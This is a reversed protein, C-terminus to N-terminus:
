LSNTNVFPLCTGLVTCVFLSLFLFHINGRQADFFLVSGDEDWFELSIVMGGAIMVLSRCSVTEMFCPRGLFM